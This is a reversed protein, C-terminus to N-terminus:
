PGKILATAETLTLGYTSTGDVMYILDEPRLDSEEAPTGEIISSIKPLETEQDLAVYAGIGYYIGESQNMLEELEEPTYYEAYPDDLASIMGRYIGTELQENTVESLYFREHFVDSLADIKETVRANVLSGEDPTISEKFIVSTIVLSVLLGIVLGLVFLGWGKRNNQNEM